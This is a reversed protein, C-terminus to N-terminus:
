SELEFEGEFQEADDDDTKMKSITAYHILYCILFLVATIVLGTIRIIKQVLIADDPTAPSKLFVIQDEAPIDEDNLVDENTAIFRYEGPQDINLKWMARGSLGTFRIRFSYDRETYLPVRIRKM